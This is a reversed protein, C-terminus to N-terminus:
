NGVVDAMPLASTSPEDPYENLGHNEMARWLEAVAIKVDSPAQGGSTSIRVTQTTKTGNEDEDITTIYYDGNGGLLTTLHTTHLDMDDTLLAMKRYHNDLFKVFLNQWVLVM